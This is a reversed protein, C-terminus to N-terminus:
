SIDDPVAEDVQRRRYESVLEIPLELEDAIESDSKLRGILTQLDQELLRLETDDSSGIAGGILGQEAGEINPALVAEPVPRRSPRILPRRQGVAGVASGKLDQLMLRGFCRFWTATGYEYGTILQFARRYQSAVTSVSRRLDTAIQSYSQEIERDYRGNSWGEHLDWVHLLEEYSGDRIRQESLGREEKWAHLLAKLSEGVQRETAAPNISVLPEDPYRNLSPRDITVLENLAFPTNPPGEVTDEEGALSFLRGVEQLDAKPVSCLLLSLIGRYSIPHIVDSLWGAKMGKLDLDAFEKAPDIPEGAVGILGLIATASPQGPAISGGDTNIRNHEDLARRWHTQYYPHRRTVEWRFRIPLSRLHFFPRALFGEPATPSTTEQPM